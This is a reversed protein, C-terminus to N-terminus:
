TSPTHTPGTKGDFQIRITGAQLVNNALRPRKFYSVYATGALTAPTSEGPRQPYTLTATGVSQGVVPEDDFTDTFFQAELELPDVLDEPTLVNYGDTDLVSCNLKGISEAGQDVEYFKLDAEIGTSFTLSAGNGTDACVTSRAM